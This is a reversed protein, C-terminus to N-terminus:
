EFKEMNWVEGGGGRDVLDRELDHWEGFRPAAVLEKLWADYETLSEFDVEWTVVEWPGLPSPSYIRWGHPLDPLGYEPYSKIAKVLKGSCSPKVNHTWRVVIM